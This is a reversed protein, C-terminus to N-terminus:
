KLKDAVKALGASACAIDNTPSPAGGVGIVGIMAGGAMIPIAGGADIGAMLQGSADTGLVAGFATQKPAAGKIMTPAGNPNSGSPRGTLLVSNIKSQAFQLHISMAGDDRLAAREVNAADVVKAAVKFGDARCKMVAEQVMALALDASVSPAAPQQAFANPVMVVALVTALLFGKM